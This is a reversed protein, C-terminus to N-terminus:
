ICKMSPFGPNNVQDVFARGTIALTSIGSEVVRGLDDYNVYGYVGSDAQRREQSFRPRGWQDYWTWTSDADPSFICLFLLYSTYDSSQFSGGYPMGISVPIREM